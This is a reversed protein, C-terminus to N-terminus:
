HVDTKQVVARKTETKWHYIQFVTVCALRQTATLWVINSKLPHYV